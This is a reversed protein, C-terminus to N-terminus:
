AKRKKTNKTGATKKSKTRAPKDLAFRIAPLVDAFFKFKLKKKIEPAVEIIDKRNEEPLIVTEVGARAATLNTLKLRYIRGQPFNYRGPCILPESDFLGPMSMDWNVLMGEPGVFAVQSAQAPMPVAPQYSMVGPGPGGVGPGPHMLREAPPLNQQGPWTCGGAVTAVLVLLCMGLRM